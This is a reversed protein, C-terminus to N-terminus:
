KLQPLDDGIGPPLETRGPALWRRLRSDAPDSTAPGVFEFPSAVLGEVPLAEEPLAEGAGNHQWLVTPISQAVLSDQGSWDLTALTGGASKPWAPGDFIVLAGSENPALVCATTNLAVTGSAELPHEAHLVVVAVAGRVTVHELTIASSVEAAPAHLFRVLAGKGLYLTNHMEISAPGRTQCDVGCAVGCLVCDRLQLRIAPPLATSRGLKDSIRIAAPLEFSGVMQAQFTCGAFEVHAAQLDILAHRDPSTIEEPRQRWVFDVNEFRVHDATLLFGNPPTAICPRGGDKGRVIAGPPLRFATASTETTSKLEVIPRSLADAPPKERNVAAVSANDVTEYNVPRVAQHPRSDDAAQARHAAENAIKQRLEPTRHAEQAAVPTQRRSPENAAPRARWLPWTAAVLLLACGAAALLPQASKKVATQAQRLWPTQDAHIGSDAIEAALQRRGVATPAGLLTELDAFSHPRAAADTQTCREIAMALADSVEPAIQRINTIKSSGSGGARPPRGALLQWWLCGAAYLDEAISPEKAGAAGRAGCYALQAQGSNTLRLTAASIDGHTIGARQLAALAATMQRAIELAAVPTLRGHWSLWQDVAFGTLLDYQAWLTGAAHGASKLLTVGPVPIEALQKIVTQLKAAAQAAQAAELGRIVFLQVHPRSNKKASEDGTTSAALFCEAGDLRQIRRQLVYPGVLLQEGRGANIEASQYPTLLRAQALADIWVSDFLPLDRALHRARGHMAQVQEPTALHLRALLDTLAASPKERM